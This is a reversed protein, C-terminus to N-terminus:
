QVHAAQTPAGGAPRHLPVPRAARVRAVPAHRGELVKPGTAEPRHRRHVVRGIVDYLRRRALVSGCPASEVTARHAVLSNGACGVTVGHARGLSAPTRPMRSRACVTMMPAPM